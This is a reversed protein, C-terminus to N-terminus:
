SAARAELADIRRLVATAAEDGIPETVLLGEATTAIRDALVGGFLVYSAVVPGLDSRATVTAIATAVDPSGMAAHGVVVATGRQQSWAEALADLEEQARPDRTGACALVVPADAPLREDMVDLLSPDPGIASTVELRLGSNEEAHAVVRPVDSRVHFASTLFAPVVLATRHGADRLERAVSTLGPEDHDLFAAHVDAGDLRRSVARALSRLGASSRPDPSGHGLLVIPVGGIATM